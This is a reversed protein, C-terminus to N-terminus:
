THTHLRSHQVEARFELVCQYAARERGKRKRERWNKCQNNCDDHSGATAALQSSGPGLDWGSHHLSYAGEGKAKEKM